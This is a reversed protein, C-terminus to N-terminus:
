YFCVKIKTAVNFTDLPTGEDECEKLEEDTVRVWVKRKQSSAFDPNFQIFNKGAIKVRTGLGTKKAFKEDFGFETKLYNLPLKDSFDTLEAEHIKLKEKWSTLLIPINKRFFTCDGFKYLYGYDVLDPYSNYWKSFNNITIDCVKAFEATLVFNKDLFM